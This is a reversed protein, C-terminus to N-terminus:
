PTLSHAAREAARVLRAMQFNSKTRVLLLRRDRRPNMTQPNDGDKAVM